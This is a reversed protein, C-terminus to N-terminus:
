DGGRLAVLNEWGLVRRLSFVWGMGFALPPDWLAAWTLSEVRRPEFRLVAGQTVARAVGVFVMPTGRGGREKEFRGLRWYVDRLKAVRGDDAIMGGDSRIGAAGRDSGM